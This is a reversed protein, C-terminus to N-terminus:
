KKIKIRKKLKGAQARISPSDPEFPYKIVISIARDLWAHINGRISQSAAPDLICLNGLTLIARALDMEFYEPNELALKDLIQEVELIILFADAYKLTMLKLLGISNLNNALSPLYATPNTEVLKRRIELAETYFTEAENLREIHYYFNGQNSLSIALDPLFASPNTEALKRRIQLAESYATESQKLRNTIIYLTGLNDLTSALNPIFDSPQTEALNRQIDLTESFATELEKLRKPNSYLNGLHKLMDGPEAEFSKSYYGEADTLRSKIKSLRAGLIYDKALSRGAEIKETLSLDTKKKEEQFMKLSQDLKQKNLVELAKDINGNSFLGFAERYLDSVEDLNIRAFEESILKAQSLLADRDETLRRTEDNKEKLTKTKIKATKDTFTKNIDKELIKYFKLANKATEGSLCLPVNVKEDPNGPIIVSLAEPTAPEYGMKFIDLLVVDGPKRDPINLEFEGTDSITQPNSKEGPARVHIDKILQFGSSQLTVKGKLIVGFANTTCM